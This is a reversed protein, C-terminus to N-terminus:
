NQIVKEFIFPKSKSYRIKMTEGAASQPDPDELPHFTYWGTHRVGDDTYYAIEYANYDAARPGMKTRIMFIM